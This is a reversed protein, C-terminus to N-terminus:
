GDNRIERAPRKAHAIDANRSKKAGGWPLLVIREGQRTFYVRYGPGHHIRLEGVGDGLGKVDGTNGLALRKIRVDISAAARLDRLGNLWRSFELIQRVELIHTIYHVDAFGDDSNECPPVRHDARGSPRIWSRIPVPDLCVRAVPRRDALLPGGAFHGGVRAMGGIDSSFLSGPFSPPSHRTM